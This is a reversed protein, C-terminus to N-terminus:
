LTIHNVPYLPHGPVGLSAEQEWACGEKVWTHKSADQAEKQLLLSWRNVQTVAVIRRGDAPTLAPAGSPLGQSGAAVRPPPLTSVVM